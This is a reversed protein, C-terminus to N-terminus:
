NLRHGHSARCASYGFASYIACFGAFGTILAICSAVGAVIAAAGAAIKLLVTLGLLLGIVVRLSRDKWSENANMVAEKIRTFCCHGHWQIPAHIGVNQMLNGM